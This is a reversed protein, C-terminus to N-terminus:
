FQLVPATKRVRDRTFLPKRCCIESVYHVALVLPLIFCSCGFVEPCLQHLFQVFRLSRSGQWLENTESRDHKSKSNSSHLWQSQCPRYIVFKSCIKSCHLWQLQLKRQITVKYCIKAVIYGSCSTSGIFAVRPAHKAKGHIVSLLM